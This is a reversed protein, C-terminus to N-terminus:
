QGIYAPHRHWHHHHWYCHHHHDEQRCCPAPAASGVSSEHLPSFAGSPRKVESTRTRYIAAAGGRKEEGSKTRFLSRRLLPEKRRGGREAEGEERGNMSAVVAVAAAATKDGARGEEEGPHPGDALNTKALSAEVENRPTPTAQDQDRHPLATHTSADVATTPPTPTPCVSPTPITSCPETTVAAPREVKRIDVRAAAVIPRPRGGVVAGGGAAREMTDRPQLPVPCSGRGAGVKHHTISISSSLRVPLGPPRTVTSVRHALASPWVPQPAGGITTITVPCPSQSPRCPILAPSTGRTTTPAPCSNRHGAGCM